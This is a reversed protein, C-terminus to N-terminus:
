DERCGCLVNGNEFFFIFFEFKNVEGFDNVLSIFIDLKLCYVLEM